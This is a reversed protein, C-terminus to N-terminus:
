ERVNRPALHRFDLTEGQPEQPSDTAQKEGLNQHNGAIRLMGQSKFADTWDTEMNIQWKRRHTDIDM